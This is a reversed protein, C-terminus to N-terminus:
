AEKRGDWASSWRWQCAEACLGAKVPNAHIYHIAVRLHAEDRIYRDWYDRMWLTRSPVELGLSENNLLMWRTTVSKWGQVIRGLNYRPEILVHVHNPMVCWALLEYRRGAHFALTEAMVAAMEEHALVCCGMGADLWQEIRQRRFIQRQAAPERSAERKLERLTSRPLSDALRFTIFQLSGPTDRHPAHGSYYWGKYVEHAANPDRQAMNVDEHLLLRLYRTKDLM